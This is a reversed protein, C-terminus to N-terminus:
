SWKGLHRVGEVGLFQFFKLFEMSCLFRRKRGRVLVVMIRPICSIKKTQILDSFIVVQRFTIFYYSKLGEVTVVGGCVVM